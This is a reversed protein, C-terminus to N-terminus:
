AVSVATLEAPITVEDAMGWLRELDYYARTDEHFIHIVLDGYDMLIWEGSDFGEISSPKEGLKALQVGIEDSIAQTQRPNNGSVILFHDTFSSVESLNLVKADYGKKSEAARVAAVIPPPVVVAANVAAVTVPPVTVLDHNL